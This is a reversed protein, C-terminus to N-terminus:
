RAMASWVNTKWGVKLWAVWWSSCWKGLWVQVGKGKRERMGGLFGLFFFFLFICEHTGTNHALALPCTSSLSLM